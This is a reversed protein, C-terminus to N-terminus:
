HIKEELLEDRLVVEPYCWYKIGEETHIKAKYMALPHAGLRKMKECWKQLLQNLQNQVDASQIPKGKYHQAQSNLVNMEQRTANTIRIFIPLLEMAQEFRLPRSENLSFLQTVNDQM